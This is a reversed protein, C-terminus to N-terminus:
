VVSKRDATPQPRQHPPMIGARVNKLVALWLTHDAVLSAESDYTDFALKGRSMGDGHCDYCYQILFPEVSRQFPSAPNSSDNAGLELSNILFLFLIFRAGRDFCGSAHLRDKLQPVLLKWISM